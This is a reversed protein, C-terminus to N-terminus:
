YRMPLSKGSRKEFTTCYGHLTHFIQKNRM